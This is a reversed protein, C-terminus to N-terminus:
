RHIANTARDAQTSNKKPTSTIDGSKQKMPVGPNPWAANVGALTNTLEVKLSAPIPIIADNACANTCACTRGSPLALMVIVSQRSAPPVATVTKKTASCAEFSTDLTINPEPLQFPAAAAHPAVTPIALETKPPPVVPAEAAAALV